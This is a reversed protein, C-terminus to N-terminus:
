AQEVEAKIRALTQEMGAVLEADHSEIGGLATSATVLSAFTRRNKLLERREVLRTGTETPELTYSWVAGPGVVRFALHREPVFATVKSLTPWVFGKRKNLNVSVTGERVPYGFFKQKWTEPSWENMRRQDSVVAWVAAPPAAIDVAAELPAVYGRAM